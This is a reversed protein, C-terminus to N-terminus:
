SECDEKIPHFLPWNLGIVFIAQMTPFVWLLALYGVGLEELVHMSYTSTISMFQPLLQDHPSKSCLSFLM